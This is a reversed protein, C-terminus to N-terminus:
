SISIEEINLSSLDGIGLGAATGAQIYALSFPDKAFLYKAAYSDAAVIDRSAIVTNMQKVYDLSGGTPGNEMMVRVGDILTLDPRLFGALDALNQGINAHLAGRDRIAGMLNKMGLTLQALGHNKAVPVDILVDATMVDEYIETTKLSSANPIYTQIFKRRVMQVMEGGAAHVIDGISSKKYAEEATGGFPNDMVKVSGAGAEFCLSVLAGVVWPNTTAAYEYTHYAVCINPKIVVTSGASVFKEMGGLAAIARRVMDEPEGNRVAVLDPIAASVPTEGSPVDTHVPTDGAIAQVPQITSTATLAPAPEEPTTCGTMAGLALAGFGLSAKKLFERRSINNM